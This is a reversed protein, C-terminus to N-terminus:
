KKIRLLLLTTHCHNKAL